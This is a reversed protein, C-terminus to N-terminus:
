EETHGPILQGRCLFGSCKRDRPLDITTFTCTDVDCRYGDVVRISWGHAEVLSTFGDFAYDPVHINHHCHLWMTRATEGTDWFVFTKQSISTPNNQDVWYGVLVKEMTGVKVM